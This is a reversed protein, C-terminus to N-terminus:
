SWSLVAGAAHERMRALEIERDWLLGEPMGISGCRHQRKVVNSWCWGPRSHRDQCLCSMVGATMRQLCSLTM